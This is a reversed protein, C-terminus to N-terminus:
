NHLSYVTDLFFPVSLIKATVAVFKSLQEYNKANKLLTVIVDDNRLITYTTIPCKVNKIVRITLIIRALFYSFNDLNTSTVALISDTWKKELCPTYV